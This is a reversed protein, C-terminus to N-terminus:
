RIRGCFDLLREAATAGGTRAPGLLGGSRIQDAAPTFREVYLEALDDPIEVSGGTATAIDWGHVVPDMGQFTLFMMMPMEVGLPTMRVAALRDPRNLLEDDILRRTGAWTTPPDIGAVTGFDAEARFDPAPGDGSLAVVNRIFGIAHGAVQRATWDACPSPSDWRIPNASAMAADMVDLARRYDAVTAIETNRNAEHAPNPMNPDQRTRTATAVSKITFRYTDHSLERRPFHSRSARRDRVTRTHGLRGFRRVGRDRARRPSRFARDPDHQVRPPRMSPHALEIESDGGFHGEGDSNRRSPGIPM